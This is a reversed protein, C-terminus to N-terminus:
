RQNRVFEPIAHNNKLYVSKFYDIMDQDQNIAAIEFARKSIRKGKEVFYKVIDSHGMELTIPVYEDGIKVGKEEVFYKVVDLNGSETAYYLVIDSIKGGKEEFKETVYKAIKLIGSKAAYEVAAENIEKGKEEVIYKVVDLKRSEIAFHIVSDKIKGGKEEFIEIIYKAVDLNGIQLIRDISNHSIQIDPKNETIYKVIDLHGNHAANHAALVFLNDNVKAGKEVLYKVMALSGSNVAVKTVYDNIRLGKEDVLYKVTDLHNNLVAAELVSDDIKKGKEEVFYKLVDLNGNQAAYYVADNGIKVGKENEFYKVLDLDGIKIAKDIKKNDNMNEFVSEKQKPNLLAYEKKTLNNSQQDAILRNYIYNKRLDSDTAIKDVQYDSLLLGTKVYQTLLSNFKNSWLYDFHEDTLKHGRGIYKSKYDPSLSKFWDLEKKPQGLEEQEKQEESSKPINVFKSVDIGKERLYRIYPKSDQTLQGTYPDLTTGTKNVKDTLAIGNQRVDVVVIGLRDDAPRTDDYVFYFTSTQTDRYSQWMKNGPKSICFSQGKGLIICQQPNNSEYVKIKGDTSTMIPVQGQFDIDSPKFNSKEKNADEGQNGHIIQTWYLYDDWPHTPKKSLLDVTILPMRNNKLYKIYDTMDTKVQQINKNKIYYYAALLLLKDTNKDNQPIVTSLDTLADGALESALLKEERNENIVFWERFNLM